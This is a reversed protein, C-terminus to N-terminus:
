RLRKNVFAKYDDGALRRYHCCSFHRHNQYRAAVATGSVVAVVCFALRIINALPLAGLSEFTSKKACDPGLKEVVQLSYPARQVPM